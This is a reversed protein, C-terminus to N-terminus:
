SRAERKRKTLWEDPIAIEVNAALYAASEAAEHVEETTNSYKAEGVVREFEKPYHYAFATAFLTEKLTM